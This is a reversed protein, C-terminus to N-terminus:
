EIPVEDPTGSQKVVPKGKSGVKSVVQSMYNYNGQVDLRSFIPPVIHLPQKEDLLTSTMISSFSNRLSSPTVYQYDM